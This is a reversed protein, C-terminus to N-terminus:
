QMCVCVHVCGCTCLASTNRRFGGVGRRGVPMCYPYTALLPALEAEAVVEPGAAAGEEDLESSSSSSSSSSSAPRSEGKGGGGGGRQGRGQWAGSSDANGGDPETNERVGEM